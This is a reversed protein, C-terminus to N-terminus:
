ESAQQKKQEAWRKRQAASIRKRAAASLVRKKRTAAPAPAVVSSVGLQGRIHDIKEQIEDREKALHSLAYELIASNRNSKGRPM